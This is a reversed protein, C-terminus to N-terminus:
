YFEASIPHTTKGTPWQDNYLHVVELPGGAAGPDSIVQASSLAPLLASVAVLVKSFM